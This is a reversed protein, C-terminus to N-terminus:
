CTRWHSLGLPTEDLFCIDLTTLPHQMPGFVIARRHKLIEVDKIINTDDFLLKQLRKTCPPASFFVSRATCLSREGTTNSLDTYLTPFAALFITRYPKQPPPIPSLISRASCLLCDGFTLANELQHDHRCRQYYLLFFTALPKRHLCPHQLAVHNHLSPTNYLSMSPRQIPKFAM